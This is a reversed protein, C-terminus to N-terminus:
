LSTLPWGGWETDLKSCDAKLLKVRGSERKTERDKQRERGRERGGKEGKKRSWQNLKEGVMSPGRIGGRRGFECGEEKVHAALM